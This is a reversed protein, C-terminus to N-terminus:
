CCGATESSAPKSCCGDVESSSSGSCCSETGSSSCCSDTESSTSSASATSSAAKLGLMTAGAPTPVAGATVAATVGAWEALQARDPYGGTMATVGDVLVLPLGKSGVVQLFGNVAENEAFALPESALNYRRLNGGQSRVFDMDASFTVLGQDVDEGCVGTACCLAPEFVEVVTMSTGKAELRSTEVPEATARIIAAQAHPHVRHTPRIEINTFGATSLAQTFEAQTLAGAICGTWESMDAKTAEDMDEDAIVDSFALRGGPRLVRAAQALVLNKDAALNIVCNSIVVNVSSDPLPIDELYGKVFEVNDVGAAAANRRALELMEDTMDLGIARGGPSVRRASILVDAGAGSGLDLVVEGPHLDAVATPVGCGLSAAVADDPAGQAEAGYLEAGFVIRGHTDTLGMPAPGCCSTEAAAAPLDTATPAAGCCSAEVVIAGEHDGAASRTAADAYRRRVIERIEEPASM